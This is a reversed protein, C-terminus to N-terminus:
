DHKPLWLGTPKRRALTPAGPTGPPPLELLALATDATTGQYSWVIDRGNERAAIAEDEDWVHIHDYFGQYGRSGVLVLIEGAHDLVPQFFYGREALARLEKM